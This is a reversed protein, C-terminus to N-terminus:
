YNGDHTFFYMKQITGPNNCIIIIHLEKDHWNSNELLSIYYM